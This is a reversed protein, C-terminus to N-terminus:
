THNILYNIHGNFDRFTKECDLLALDIAVNMVNMFSYIKSNNSLESIGLTEVFRIVVAVNENHYDAFAKYVYKYLEIGIRDNYKDRFAQEIDFEYAEIIENVLTEMLAKLEIPSYENQLGNVFIRSRELITKIKITLITDFLWKKDADCFKINAINRKHLPLSMFLDHRLLKTKDITVDSFVTKNRFNILDSRFEADAIFKFAVYFLPAILFVVLAQAHGPLGTLFNIIYTIIEEM